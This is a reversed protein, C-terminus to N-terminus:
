LAAVLLCLCQILHSCAPLPQNWTLAECILLGLGSFGTQLYLSYYFLPKMEEM